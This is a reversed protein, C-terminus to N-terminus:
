PTGESRTLAREWDAQLVVCAPHFAHAQGAADRRVEVCAGVVPLGCWTCVHEPAPQQRPARGSAECAADDPRGACHPRDQHHCLASYPIPQPGEVTALDFVLRGDMVTEQDQAHKVIWGNAGRLAAELEAVRAEAAKAKAVELFAAEQQAFLCKKLVEVERVLGGGQATGHIRETLYREQAEAKAARQEAAEARKAMEVLHACEAM